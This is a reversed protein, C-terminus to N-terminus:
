NLIEIDTTYIVECSHAGTDERTISSNWYFTDGKKNVGNINVLYGKLHIYKGRKIKNLKGRVESDAPIIHCNASQRNVDAETGINALEDYSKLRWSVWRGSQTWHFDVEGNNAAVTGWAVALDKPSLADGVSSGGYNKTSVVLAKMDYEYLYQINVDYGKVETKKHGTAPTQVPEPVNAISIRSGRDLLIKGVVVVIIVIIIVAKKNM